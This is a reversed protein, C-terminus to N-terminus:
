ISVTTERLFAQNISNKVLQNNPDLRLLLKAPVQTLWPADILQEREMNLKTKAWNVIGSVCNGARRADSFTVFTKNIERNFIADHFKKQRELKKTRIRNLYNQAMTARVRTAFNKSLLDQYTPHYDMNDSQRILVLGLNDKKFKMGKPAPIFKSHKEQNWGYKYVVGRGSEGILVFSTYRPAYGWKTYTCGRSYRGCDISRYYGLDCFDSSNEAHRWNQIRKNNERAANSAKYALDLNEVLIKKFVSQNKASFYKDSPNSIKEKIGKALETVQKVTKDKHFPRLYKVWSKLNSYYTPKIKM